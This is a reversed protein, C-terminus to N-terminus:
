ASRRERGLLLMAGGLAAVALGHILLARAGQDQGLGLGAVLVAGVIALARDAGEVILYPTLCAYGTPVPSVM